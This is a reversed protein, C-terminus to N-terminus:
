TSGENIELYDKDLTVGAIPEVVNVTCNDTYGGDVTSCIIETKGESIGTIEGDESAKAISDDLSVWNISQNTSNEPTINAILEVTENENITIENKEFDIGTVKIETSDNSLSNDCSFVFIAILLLTIRQHKMSLEKVLRYEIM